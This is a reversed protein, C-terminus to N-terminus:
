QEEPEQGDGLLYQSSSNDTSCEEAKTYDRKGPECKQIKRQLDKDSKSELPDVFGFIPLYPIGLLTIPVGFLALTASISALTGPPLNVLDSNECENEPPSLEDSIENIISTGKKASEYIFRSLKINPDVVETLTKVVMLGFNKALAALDVGYPDPGRQSLIRNGPGNTALYNGSRIGSLFVLKLSDKTRNFVRAPEENTGIYTLNYITVLSLFRNVPVLYKYLLDFQDSNKLNERIEMYNTMYLHDMKPIPALPINVLPNNVVIEGALDEITTELLDIKKESYVIPISMYKDNIQEESINLTENGPKVGIEHLYYAKDRNVAKKYRDTNEISGYNFFTESYQSLRSNPASICTLRLGFSLEEFLESLLTQPTLNPLREEIYRTLDTGCSEDPATPEYFSKLVKKTNDTKSTNYEGIVTNNNTYFQNIYNQFDELKVVGQL